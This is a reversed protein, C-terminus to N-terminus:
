IVCSPKPRLTCDLSADVTDQEALQGQETKSKSPRVPKGKVAECTAAGTADSRIGLSVIRKAGSTDLSVSPLQVPLTSHFLELVRAWSSDIEAQSTRLHGIEFNIQAEFSRMLDSINDRDHTTRTEDNVVAFDQSKGCSPQSFKNICEAVQKEIDFLVKEHSILKEMLAKKMHKLAMNNLVALKRHEPDQLADIVNCFQRYTIQGHKDGIALMLQELEEPTLGVKALRFRFEENAEVTHMLEDLCLRGDQNIDMERIFTVLEKKHRLEADVKEMFKQTDKAERAEVACDVVVALILNMAGVGIVMVTLPLLLGLVDQEIVPICAIWTM